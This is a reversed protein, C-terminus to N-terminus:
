QQTTYQRVRDARSTAPTQTPAPARQSPAPASAQGRIADIVAQVSSGQTTPPGIIDFAKSKIQPGEIAGAIWQLQKNRDTPHAKRAEGAIREAESEIAADPDPRTTPTLGEKVATTTPVVRSNGNADTVIQFGAPAWLGTDKKQGTAKDYAYIRSEGGAEPAGTIMVIGAGSASDKSVQTVADPNVQRGYMDWYGNLRGAGTAYRVQFAPGGDKPAVWFESTDFKKRSSLWDYDARTAIPNFIQTPAPAATGQMVAPTPAQAAPAPPPQPVVMGLYRQALSPEAAPAEVEPIGQVQAPTPAAAAESARRDYEANMVELQQDSYRPSNYAPAGVGIPARQIWSTEADQGLRESLGLASSIQVAMGTVEESNPIWNPERAKRDSIDRALAENAKTQWFEKTSEQTSAIAAIEGAATEPDLKDTPKLDGGAIQRFINGVVAGTGEKPAAKSAEHAHGRLVNQVNEMIKRQAEPTLRPDSARFLADQYFAMRSKQAEAEKQLFRLSREKSAQDVGHMIAAAIGAKPGLSGLNPNKELMSQQGQQINNVAQPYDEVNFPRPAAGMLSFQEISNPPAM